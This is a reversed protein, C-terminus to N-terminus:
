SVLGQVWLLVQNWTHTLWELVAADARSV